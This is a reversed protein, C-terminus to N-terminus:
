CQVNFLVQRARFYNGGNATKYYSKENDNLILLHSYEGNNGAYLYNEIVQRENM